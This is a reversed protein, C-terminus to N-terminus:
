ATFSPVLLIMKIQAYNHVLSAFYVSTCSLGGDGIFPKCSQHVANVLM